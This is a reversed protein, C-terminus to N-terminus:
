SVYCVMPIQLMMVQSYFYLFNRLDRLRALKHSSGYLLVLTGWILFYFEVFKINCISDSSQIRQPM